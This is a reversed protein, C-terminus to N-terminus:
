PRLFRPTNGNSSMAALLMSLAHAHYPCLMSVSGDAYDLYFCRVLVGKNRYDVPCVVQANLLLTAGSLKKVYIQIVRNLAVVVEYNRNIGIATGRSINTVPGRRKRCPCVVKVPYDDRRGGSAFAYSARM